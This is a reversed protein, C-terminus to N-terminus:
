ENTRDVDPRAFGYGGNMEGLIQEGAPVIDGEDGRRKGFPENARGQRHRDV